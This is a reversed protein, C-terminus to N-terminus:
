FKIVTGTDCSTTAAVSLKVALRGDELGSRPTGGNLCVNFFDSFIKPDAGGHTGESEKRLDYTTIKGTHRQTFQVLGHETDGEVMGDTGVIRIQRTNRAAIVNVTYTARVDNDYEVVVIGNDFTDKDSNFLCIDPSSEGHKEMLLHLKRREELWGDVPKFINYFDPCTNKIDCDRCRPGVGPATKYHSLSSMAYLSKPKGGALWTLLDFDHCAKTLWLGGGFERLRNWRRFYTKGGYYYENAEITTLKGLNDARILEHIKEHIPSHRMNFGLYCIQKSGKAAAIIKDCDELTTALPKELYIHKGAKIALVAPTVHAYDPTTIIVADIDKHALLAAYDDYIQADLKSYDRLVQAKKRRLDFIAVLRCRDPNAAIFEAFAISRNSAGVIATRVPQNM